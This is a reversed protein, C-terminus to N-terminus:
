YEDVMLHLIEDLTPKMAIDLNFCQIKIQDVALKLGGKILIDQKLIVDYQFPAYFTNAMVGSVQKTQDPYPLLLRLLQVQWSNEFTNAVMQM